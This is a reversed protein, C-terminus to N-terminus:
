VPDPDNVRELRSELCTVWFFQQIEVIRRGHLHLKTTRHRRRSALTQTNQLPLM